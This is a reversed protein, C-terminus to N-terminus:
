QRDDRAQTQPQQGLAQGATSRIGLVSCGQNGIQIEKDNM